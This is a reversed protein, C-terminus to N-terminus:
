VLLSFQNRATGRTAGKFGPFLHSDEYTKNYHDYRLSKKCAKKWWAKLKKNHMQKLALLSTPLGGHRKALYAPLQDPPDTLGEAAEKAVKDVMENGEARSHAAIWAITLEFEKQGEEKRVIARMTRHAIDFHYHSQWQRYIVMSQIVGQNDIQMTSKQPLIMKKLLHLGLNLAVAEAEFSMNRTLPGLHYRLIKPTNNDKMLVAVAGANGKYGSGDTYIRIQAKNDRNFILSEEKLEAIKTKFPMMYTPLQQVLMITETDDPWINYIHALHHLPSCHRMINHWLVQWLLRQLPHRPPVAALRVM